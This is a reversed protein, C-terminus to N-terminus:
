PSPTTTENDFRIFITFDDPLYDDRLSVTGRGRQRLWTQARDMWVAPDTYFMPRTTKARHHLLNFAVGRRCSTAFGSLTDQVYSDWTPASTRDRFNFTGSVFGYDAPETRGKSLVFRARADHGTRKRAMAIMERSIDYGTYRDVVPTRNNKVKDWLAGWGCGLDSISVPTDPSADDLLSLLVDLRVSQVEETSWGVGLPTDGKIRVVRGYQAAIAHVFSPTVPPDSVTM